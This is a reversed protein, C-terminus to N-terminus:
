RGGNRGVERWEERREKVGGGNRAPAKYFRRSITLLDNQIYINVDDM